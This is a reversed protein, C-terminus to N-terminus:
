DRFKALNVILRSLVRAQSTSALGGPMRGIGQLISRELADINGPRQAYNQSVQAFSPAFGGEVVTHCQLCALKQRRIYDLLAQADRPNVPSKAEPSQAEIPAEPNAGMMGPGMMGGYGGGTMQANAVSVLAGLVLMVAACRFRRDFTM